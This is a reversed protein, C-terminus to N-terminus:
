KRNKDANKEMRHMIFWQQLFSLSNNVFWYLMLGAPFNLFMVTFVVPMLMMVKAQMPDPPPPNLRQQAFMSLGMLLPLVYFPDKMSLDHIWLIFPAQRLQVSEVLVWYLGIFVPIQVLIPLCGSMPNVKEKRYLELTEQTFKQRDDGYKEKLANLRPQLKKLASMSYYSKASLKYFILKIVLTVIVISWGWNGVIDYIHQMMWFIIISIFWFWGFDITLQLGPAVKSLISTNAPGSYFNSTITITQKPQVSLKPGIMGVTYLGDNTVRTFYQSTTNKDPIWASIFYHQIMAAWGGNITQNLNKENMESFKIKQYPKDPSSIAAGFYTAFNALGSSNAPPTNKRMLQLYLNGDWPKATQNEIQYAVGVEYDNKKFTFIKTIKLGQSNQWHLKVQLENQDNSLVYDTKDTSYVAQENSTDPGNLGLLGSQALYRTNEENNLLVFPTKSHLAEPYEPLKVQIINGGRTSIDVDLVDTQVHVVQQNLKDTAAASSTIQSAQSTATTTNNVNPIYSESATNTEAVSHAATQKAHDKDWEQFLIFVIAILTAYLAIRLYDFIKTTM